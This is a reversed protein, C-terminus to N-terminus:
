CRQGALHDVRAVDTSNIRVAIKPQRCHGASFDCVIDATYGFRSCHWEPGANRSHTPFVKKKSASEGCKGSPM